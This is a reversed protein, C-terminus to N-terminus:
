KLFKEVFDEVTMRWCRGAARGTYVKKKEFGLEEMVKSLDAATTKGRGFSKGFRSAVEDLKVVVCLGDAGAAYVGSVPEGEIGTLVLEGSPNLKLRDKWAPISAGKECYEVAGEAITQVSGVLQTIVDLVLGAVGQEAAQQVTAKNALHERLGRTVGNNDEGKGKNPRGAWIGKWNWFGFTRDLCVAGGTGQYIKRAVIAPKDLDSEGLEVDHGGVRLVVTEREAQLVYRVEWDCEWVDIRDPTVEDWALSPDRILRLGAAALYDVFSRPDRAAPQGSQGSEEGEVAPEAAAQEAAVAAVAAAPDAEAMMRQWKEEAERQLEARMFKEANLFVQWVEAEEMPPECTALNAGWVWLWVQDRVEQEELGNIGHLRCADRWCSNAHRLMANNRGPETVKKGPSRFNRHHNNSPAGGGAVGSQQRTYEECIWEVVHDPLTAVPIEDIGRGQVWQYTLGGAHRSPPAVSQTDKGEGGIRIEMGNITVTAVNPLGPHWRYLRHLSKGSSWTVTPYDRLLADALNRGEITDDEIDIVAQEPPIGHGLGLLVGVNWPAKGWLDAIVQQDTTASKGWQAGVPHKGQGRRSPCDKHGCSCSVGDSGFIPYHLRVVHLGHKALLLAGDATIIVQNM